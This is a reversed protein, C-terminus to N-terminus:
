RGLGNRGDSTNVQQRDTSPRARVASASAAVRSGSHIPRWSRCSMLPQEVRELTAPSRILRDAYRWCSAALPRRNSLQAFCRWVDEDMLYYCIYIEAPPSKGGGVRPRWQATSGV